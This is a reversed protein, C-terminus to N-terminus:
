GAGTCVKLKVKTKLERYETIEGIELKKGDVFLQL